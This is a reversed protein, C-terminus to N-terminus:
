YYEYHHPRQSNGRPLEFPPRILFCPDHFRKDRSGWVIWLRVLHTNHTRADNRGCVTSRFRRFRVFRVINATALALNEDPWAEEVRRVSPGKLKEAPAFIHGVFEDQRLTWLPRKRLFSLLFSATKLNKTPDECHGASCSFFPVTKRRHERQSAQFVFCFKSVTM